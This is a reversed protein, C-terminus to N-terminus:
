GSDPKFSTLQYRYPPLAGAIRRRARNAARQNLKRNTGNDPGRFDWEVEFFLMLVLGHSLTFLLHSHYHEQDNLV